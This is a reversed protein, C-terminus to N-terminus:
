DSQRRTVLKKMIEKIGRELQADRGRIMDDPRNCVEIDPSVGKNEIFFKGHRNYPGMAPYVIVGKDMLHFGGNSSLSGATRKGIILGSDQQRFSEVFMDGGSEAWENAICVKPGFFGPDPDCLSAKGHSLHWDYIMKRNLREVMWYPAFGGSNFRVDVILAQKHLQPHFYRFFSEMGNMYTDPIHIYGIKGGSAKNVKEINSLVWDNYRLFNLDEEPVLVPKVKVIRSGEVTPKTHITLSVTKGAKNVLLAYPNVTKELHTGDISLLYDGEKINMGPLTLPSIRHPNWNQGKYIKSIQYRQCAADWVLDIGLSGNKEKPIEPFDGGYLEVHSHGLEAFMREILHNLDKRTAVFPVLTDYRKKIVLWDVGNMNEDWFMDRQIRWAEDFMHKWSKKYDVTVKLGSFDLLGDGAKQDPQIDLVGIQKHSRYIIKDAKAAPVCYWADKLLVSEKQADMDFMHITSEGGSPESKYILKGKIATLDTLRANKVPLSTIRDGLGDIDIQLPFPNKGIKARKYEGEDSFPALMDKQLTAIIIKSPNVMYHNRDWYSNEVNIEHGTIWFLYRGEPDFQPYDDHTFDSTVQHTKGNELSYLYISGFRSQNSNSFALWRSDPSWAASVFIDTGNFKNFFVKRSVKTEIDIFYYTSRHDSYGIKRSDPSWSLRSLRSKICDTLRRSRKGQENIACIYIQDEGSNDSIYAYYKGNPSWKPSKETAGPTNTLNRTHNTKPNILFLDGGAEIIVAKGDPSISISGLQNKVNKVETALHNKPLPINIKLARTKGSITNHVYLRGGCEYVIQDDGQSASNIEWDKHFTIQRVKRSKRNYVWLNQEKNKGRDSLFYISDGMWMPYQNVSPDAIVLEAKRNKFDYTWINPAMGGRYRKWQPMKELSTRCFAIKDGIHNYSALEGEPLDLVEPLGGAASVMHLRKFRYSFSSRISRFLIKEGDPHWDVVLDKLQHYTLRKPKGGTVPMVYVDVNGEFEATFAVLKGDPSFKPLCEEGSFSTLQKIQKGDITSTYLNGGYCFVIKNRHIDPQLLLKTEAAVSWVYFFFLILVLILWKQNKVTRMIGGYANEIKKQLQELCTLRSSYFFPHCIDFFTLNKELEQSTLLELLPFELINVSVRISKHKYHGQPALHSFRYAIPSL